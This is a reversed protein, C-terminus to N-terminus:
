NMYRADSEEVQAMTGLFLCVTYNIIGIIKMWQSTKKM